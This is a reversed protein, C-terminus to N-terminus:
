KSVPCTAQFSKEERDSVSNVLDFVSCIEKPCNQGKCTFILYGGKQNEVSLTVIAGREAFYDNSAWSNNAWELSDLQNFLHEKELQSIHGYVGHRGLVGGQISVDLNDSATIRVLGFYGLTPSYYTLVLPDHHNLHHHLHAIIIDDHYDIPRYFWVVAVICVILLVVGLFTTTRKWHRIFM